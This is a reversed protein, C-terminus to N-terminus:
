DNEVEIRRKWDQDCIPILTIIGGTDELLEALRLMLEDQHNRSLVGAYASLQVRDLGYDHCTDAIRARRRDDSIDYLLLIRQRM